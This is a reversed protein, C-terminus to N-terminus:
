VYGYLGRVSVEGAFINKQGEEATEVILEGTENIGLAHANYENGPELVRVECGRNILIRNYFEQQGSLDERQLFITYYKEFSKMVSAIIEVRSFTKGSENKLSTAVAEIEEPFTEQNVNIGVGIVVYNIHDIETSMETLIGCIKKGNLVIDNPWKIGTALGTADKLGEAVAAAMVLTLMPAKVPPIEPRLLLTMYISGGAPSEWSRGRRGRGANQEEAIVLTGHEAGDTGAAKAQINTSDTEEYYIVDSILDIDKLLRYQEPVAKNDYVIKM